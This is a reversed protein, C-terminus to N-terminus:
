IQVRLNTCYNRGQMIYGLTKYQYPMEVMEAKGEKEGLGWWLAIDGMQLTVTCIERQISYYM